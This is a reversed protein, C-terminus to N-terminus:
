RNVQIENLVQQLNPVNAAIQQAEQRQQPTKVSGELTLV